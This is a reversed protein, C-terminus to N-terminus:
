DLDYYVKLSQLIGYSGTFDRVIGCFGTFDRLIGYFGTFDRLIGYFGTFDRLIGYFGTCHGGPGCRVQEGDTDKGDTVFVIIAQCGTRTAGSLLDFAVEIGRRM